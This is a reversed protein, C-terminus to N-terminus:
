GGPRKHTLPNASQYIHGARLVRADTHRAGVLHLGIPLGNSTYGCPVSLAPQGTLNFPYSFPTWTHWRKQQWDSPVERGAEFAPIPLTPTLLLDYDRHFAEMHEILATRANAAELYDLMGLPAYAEAVEVLGADMQKRQDQDIDRLANAAGSYFMRSFTLAPDSFGPDVEEVSAGLEVFTTAAEEVAASIEPDVFDVYGLTPSYAIRWGRLDDGELADLYNATTPPVTTDRPDFETLVNMLLAADAVTWALPGVHALPAFASAPWMPCRGTTPKLGVLGCFGAPIRISGGADTGLALAGMGLPVAASSGGSSGGSTMDPNWPNRTIGNLPNDTVGKWGFEPTTTKGMPVMGHRKLAAVAPADAEWDQDPDIVKSGKLTPWGRTLFVDKIAVPVGDVLGMPIGRQYREEARRAQTLTVEEDLLCFANVTDNHRSIRALAAEAVEVPSLAGERFGKLMELATLDAADSAAPM